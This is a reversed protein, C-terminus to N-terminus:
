SKTPSRAVVASVPHDHTVSKQGEMPWCIHVVAVNKMVNQCPQFLKWLFPQNDKRYMGPGSPSDPFKPELGAELRGAWAVVPVCAAGRVVTLSGEQDFRQTIQVEKTQHLVGREYHGIGTADLFFGCNQPNRTDRDSFVGFPGNGDFASCVRKPPCFCVGDAIRDPTL